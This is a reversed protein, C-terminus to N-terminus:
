SQFCAEVSSDRNIWNAKIVQYSQFQFRSKTTSTTFNHWKRSSIEVLASAKVDHVFFRPKIRVWSGRKIAFCLLQAYDQAVHKRQSEVYSLKEIQRRRIETELKKNKLIIINYASLSASLLSLARLFCCNTGKFDVNSPMYFVDAIHFVFTADSVSFM